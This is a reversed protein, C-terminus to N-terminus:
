VELWCAVAFCCDLDIRIRDETDANGFGRGRSFHECARFRLGVM